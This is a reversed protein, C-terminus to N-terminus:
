KNKIYKNFEDYNEYKNKIEEIISKRTKGAFKLLYLLVDEKSIKDFGNKM